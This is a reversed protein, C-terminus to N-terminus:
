PLASTFTTSLTLMVNANMSIQRATTWSTECPSCTAALISIIVVVIMLEILNVGLQKNM